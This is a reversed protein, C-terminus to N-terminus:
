LGAQQKQKQKVLLMIRKKKHLLDSYRKQAVSEYEELAEVESQLKDMRYKMGVKEHSMLVSYVKQEISVHQLEQFSSHFNDSISQFRNIYGGNKITLKNEIKEAKKRYSEAVEKLIKFESQLAQIKEEENSTTTSIWQKTSSSYIQNQSNDLSTMITATQLAKMIESNSSLTSDINLALQIKEQILSDYENSLLEGASKLSDESIFELPREPPFPLSSTEVNDDNGAKSKKGKKKDKKSKKKEDVSDSTLVVPHSFADHQLLTLMEEQLLRDAEEYASEEKVEGEITGVILDRTVAGIPRPLDSRKMVSSREEYLRVAERELAALEEAEVDAADMERDQDGYEKEEDDTVTEPAALEYEFQPAPLNALALELEQRAKKAARREARALEKISMTRDGFTSTAFSTGSISIDDNTSAIERGEITSRNLGLEDRPTSSHIPTQNPQNHSTHISSGSTTMPTSSGGIM